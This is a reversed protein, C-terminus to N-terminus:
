KEIDRLEAITLLTLQLQSRAQTKVDPFGQERFEAHSQGQQHLTFHFSDSSFVCQLLEGRGQYM